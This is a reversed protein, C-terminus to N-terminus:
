GGPGRSGTQASPSNTLNLSGIKQGGLDDDGVKLREPGASIRLINQGLERSLIDIEDDHVLRVDGGRVGILARKVMEGVGTGQQHRGAKLAEVAFGNVCLDNVAVPENIRDGIPIRFVHADM